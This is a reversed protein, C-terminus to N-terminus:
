QSSVTSSDSYLRPVRQGISCLIEYPITDLIGAIDGATITASGQTGLLVVPDGAQANPLDTVDVMTMDMSVRGVVPVRRDDILVM